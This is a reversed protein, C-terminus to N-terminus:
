FIMCTGAPCPGATQLEVHLFGDQHRFGGVRRLVRVFCVSAIQASSSLSYTLHDVHVSLVVKGGDMGDNPALAAFHHARLDLRVCVVGLAGVLIITEPEQLLDLRYGQLKVFSLVAKIEIM